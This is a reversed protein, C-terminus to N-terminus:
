EVTVTLTIVGAIEGIGTWTGGCKTKAVITTPLTYELSSLHTPMKVTMQMSIASCIDQINDTSLIDIWYSLPSDWRNGGGEVFVINNWILEGHSPDYLRFTLEDSALPMDLGALTLVSIPDGVLSDDPLAAPILSSIISSITQPIM